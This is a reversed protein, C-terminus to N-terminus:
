KKLTADFWDLTAQLAKLHMARTAEPTKGIWSHDTEPLELFESRVGAAKLTAIMERSQTVPVTRDDTGHVLLTPPDKPDIFSVASAAKV